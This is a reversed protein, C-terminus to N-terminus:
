IIYNSVVVYKRINFKKLDKLRLGTSSMITDFSEGAILMERAQKELEGKNLIGM